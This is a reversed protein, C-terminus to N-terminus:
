PKCHLIQADLMERHWIQYPRATSPAAREAGGELLLHRNTAFTQMATIPELKRGATLAAEASIFVATNM